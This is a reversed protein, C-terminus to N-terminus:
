ETEETWCTFDLTEVTTGTHLELHAQVTDPITGHENTPSLGLIPQKTNKIWDFLQKTTYSTPTYEEIWLRLEGKTKCCLGTRSFIHEGIIDLILEIHENKQNVGNIKLYDPVCPCANPENSQIELIM